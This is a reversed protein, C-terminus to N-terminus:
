LGLFKHKFLDWTGDLVSARPSASDLFSTPGVSVQGRAEQMAQGLEQLKEFFGDVDDLTPNALSPLAGQLADYASNVDTLDLKKNRALSTIERKIKPLMTKLMGLQSVAKDCEGLQQAYEAFSDTDIDGITDVTASKISSVLTSAESLLETCEKPTGYGSPLKGIKRKLVTLRKDLATAQGQYMKLMQKLQQSEFRSSQEDSVVSDQSERGGVRSSDQPQRSSQGPRGPPGGFFSNVSNLFGGFFGGQKGSQQQSPFQKPAGQMMGNQGFPVTGGRQFDPGDKQFNAGDRQFDSGDKQFHAGDRQFNTGDRQFDTGDRQFDSGSPPFGGGVPQFSGQQFQGGGPPPLTPSGSQSTGTTQPQTPAPASGGSGSVSPSPPPLAEVTQASLETPAPAPPLAHYTSPNFPALLLPFIKLIDM